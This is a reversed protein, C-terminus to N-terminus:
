LSLIHFFFINFLHYMQTITSPVHHKPSSLPSLSSLTLFVRHLHQCLPCCSVPFGHLSPLVHECFFSPHTFSLASPLLYNLYLLHALLRLLWSFSLVHCNTNKSITYSASFCLIPLQCFGFVFSSFVHCFYIYTCDYKPSLTPKTWPWQLLTIMM